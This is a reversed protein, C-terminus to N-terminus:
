KFFTEYVNFNVYKSEIRIYNEKSPKNPRKRKRISNLKMISFPINNEKLLEATESKVVNKFYFYKKKINYKTRFFHTGYNSGGEVFSLTCSFTSLTTYHGYDIKLKPKFLNKHFEYLLYLLLFNM